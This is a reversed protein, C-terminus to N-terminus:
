RSAIRVADRIFQQRVPHVYGDGGFGLDDLDGGAKGCDECRFGGLFQRAPRHFSRVLCRLRAFPSM